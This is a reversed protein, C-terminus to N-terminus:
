HTEFWNNGIKSEGNMISIKLLLPGDKFAKKAINATIESYEEPVGIQIEDHYFIYPKYPINQKELEEVTLMLAIACTAKECAQLLYVLLKHFGDCYIKNGAIGYIYGPGFQSTKAFVAELKELLDRFGPIAKLFEKKFKKGLEDDIVSFLYSWLKPGSAGFLTAYLIRKSRGRLNDPIESVELKKLIKLIIDANRQHIDGSLLENTFEEKNLYYALGRAQNGSSDAGVIKWGIETIFLKRMESGYISDPTPVNVIVNHRARMSPTGITFCDGHLKGNTDCNEIWTKLISFRSRVTLFDCYLKGNGSLMGELSDETIKPSSRIKKGTEPDVKFNWETPQWGNRELFIKVDTVSDIDLHKFEVRCYEGEILQNKYGGTDPDIGFWNATHINYAGNKNWKPWKPEVVGLKKDIAVCKSGLLPLVKSRTENMIIELKSFLEKAKNLNFPWGELEAQACFQAVAHEAKLYIRINETKAVITKFERLLYNYVKETLFLDNKCYELMEPSYQTFDIFSGKPFDLFEGWSALNHSNDSFRKYNLIQSFLMTDHVTVGVPLKYNFLKKLMILDFQIVRHGIVITAKNLMDQWSLDGELFMYTQHTELNLLGVIWCHTGGKLLDNTEIDLIYRM